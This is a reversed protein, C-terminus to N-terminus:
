SSGTGSTMASSSLRRVEPHENKSLVTGVRRLPPTSCSYRTPLLPTSRRAIRTGFADTAVLACNHPAHAGSTSLEISAARAPRSSHPHDSLAAEAEAPSAADYTLACWQQAAFAVPGTSETTLSCVPAVPRTALALGWLATAILLLLLETLYSEEKSNNTSAQVGRRDTPQPAGSRQIVGSVKEM